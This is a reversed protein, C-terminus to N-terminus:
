ARYTLSVKVQYALRRYYRLLCSEPLIVPFRGYDTIWGSAGTGGLVV